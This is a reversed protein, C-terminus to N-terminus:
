RWWHLLKEVQPVFEREWRSACGLAKNDGNHDEVGSRECLCWLCRCVLLLKICILFKLLVSTVLIFGFAFVNFYVNFMRSFDSVGGSDHFHLSNAYKYFIRFLGSSFKNDGQCPLRTITKQLRIM